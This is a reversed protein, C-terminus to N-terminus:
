RRSRVFGRAISLAWTLVIRIFEILGMDDDSGTYSETDKKATLDRAIRAEELKRVEAATLTYETDENFTRRVVCVIICILSVVALWVIHWVFGFGVLFAFISIYIGSATNRPIRIDEYKPKLKGHSKIDKFPTRSSVEPIVTFNYFQPPSATAWELTGGDWPDGTTDRLRRKQLFSAIIQVIQLAVGVAITLGGILM